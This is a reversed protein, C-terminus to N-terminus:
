NLRAKETVRAALARGVKFLAIRLDPLADKGGDGEILAHALILHDAIRDLADDPLTAPHPAPPRFREITGYAKITNTAGEVIETITGIYGIFADGRANYSPVGGAGIWRPTDDPKLLRYRINFEAVQRTADDLLSSVVARDERHVRALWGRGLADEACQGTLTFWEASTYVCRGAADTLFIM